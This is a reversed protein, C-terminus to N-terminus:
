YVRPILRWPVLKCYRDWDFGYKRRCARDDRRERHALLAAFSLAYVYPVASRFGCAICWSLGILWDGTYNIHRAYGWWGSCILQTGRSTTITRLHVVSPHYPDRRFQDKQANAGRFIYYGLGCIAAAALIGPLPLEGGGDAIFKAQTSFIFPVWAFDGYSLMFGFGETTIDMTTLISPENWVADAIYLLQAINVFVMGPSVQM